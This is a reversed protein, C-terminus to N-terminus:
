DVSQGAPTELGQVQKALTVTHSGPAVGTIEIVGDAPNNDGNQNDCVQDGDDVRVCAGPVPKTGDTANVTISGNQRPSVFDFEVTGGGELTKKQEKPDLTYGAPVSSQKVTYDGAPIDPLTMDGDGDQDCVEGQNTVQYCVGGVPKGQDDT